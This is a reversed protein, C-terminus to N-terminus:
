WFNCRGGDEPKPCTDGGEPGSMLNRGYQGGADLAGGLAGGLAAAGSGRATPSLARTIPTLERFRFNTLTAGVTRTANQFVANGIGGGIAGATASITVSWGTIEQDNIYSIGINSAIGAGAGFLAGVAAGGPITSIVGALGGIAGSQVVDWFDGGSCYSSIAGVAAGVGFGIAQVIWQGAPDSFHIPNNAVYGYLNVDGGAFGIPDKATWRGTKPDYDRFGFRVLGTTRDHLGGAFGLPITVALSGFESLINGFSDYTVEKIKNSSADFVARLSGVQDYALYYTASNYTMAIPLRGGAYGFRLVLNDSGDYIALLGQNMGAWLYKEVTSWNGGQKVRKAVRWGLADHDYAVEQITGSPFVVGLLEGRSSYDYATTGASEVKSTLFGDADYNYDAILNAPIQNTSNYVM